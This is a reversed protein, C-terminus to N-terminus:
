DDIEEFHHELGKEGGGFLSRALVRKGWGTVELRGLWRILCAM